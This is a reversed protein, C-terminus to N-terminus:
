TLPHALAENAGADVEGIHRIDIPMLAAPCEKVVQAKLRFVNANLRSIVM